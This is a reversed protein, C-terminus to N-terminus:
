IISIPESTADTSETAISHTNPDSNQAETAKQMKSQSLASERLKNIGFSLPGIKNRSEILDAESLFGLDTSIILQNLVEALSSYVMQYFHAQDKKSVRASGESINSPVSLAAKRVQLTVGFREEYPFGATIRYVFVTLKRADQWVRLKEFAFIYM